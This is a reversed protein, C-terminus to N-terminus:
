DHPMGIPLDWKQALNITLGADVLQLPSSINNTYLQGTGLGHVFDTEFHSVWQAIANLGVNSELASNVWWGIQREQALAIWEEASTFGGILTPKLVLCAPKIQELLQRRHLMEFQGILEEDLAIPIPSNRCLDAMVGWQGPKIPQELVFIKYQALTELMKLANDASFAGNADLRIEVEDATYMRRITALVECEREFPLAGVKLKVCRFGQAVKQEIQRQLGKQDAMWILGHTPLIAEGRSFATDFWRRRGGNQLDLAAMEIAFALAPWDALQLDGLREGANIAECVQAIKEEFDPRDDVSLGVLPGAEGIGFVTPTEPDTLQVFFNEQHYLYGRSTGAPKKFQLVYKKYSAQYPSALTKPRIM